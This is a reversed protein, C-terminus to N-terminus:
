PGPRGYARAAPPRCSARRVDRGAVRPQDVREDDVLGVGAPRARRGARDDRLRQHGVQAADRAAPRSRARCGGCSPRRRRRFPCSRGPARSAGRRRQADLRSRSARRPARARPQRATALRALTRVVVVGNAADVEDSKATFASAASSSRARGAGTSRSSAPARPRRRARRRAPRRSARRRLGRRDGLPDCSSSSTGTAAPSCESAAAFSASAAAPRPRTRRRRRRRPSPAPARARRSPEDRAARDVAPRERARARELAHGGHDHVHVLAVLRM